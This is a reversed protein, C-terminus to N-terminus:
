HTQCCFRKFPDSVHKQTRPLHELEFFISKYNSITSQLSSFDQKETFVAELSSYNQYINKLSQIFFKLDDSNFTRHVFSSLGDLDSEQHNCVFDYPANDFLEMLRTANNIISKRNGWAITATLFASIEIDEKKTFRHPVQLPDSELFKPHEYQEAKQDLFEKLERKNM